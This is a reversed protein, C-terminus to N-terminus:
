NMTYKNLGSAKHKFLREPCDERSCVSERERQGVVLQQEGTLYPARASGKVWKCAPHPADNPHEKKLFRNNSNKLLLKGTKCLLCEEVSTDNQLLLFGSCFDVIPWFTCFMVDFIYVIGTTSEKICDRCRVSLSCSLLHAFSWLFSLFLVDVSCWYRVCPLTLLSDGNELCKLTSLLQSIQVHKFQHCDESLMQVYAVKPVILLFLTSGEGRWWDTFIKDLLNIEVNEM